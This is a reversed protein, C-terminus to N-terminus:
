TLPLWYAALLRCKLVTTFRLLLLPALARYDDCGDYDDYYYYAAGWCPALVTGARHWCPALVTGHADAEVRM